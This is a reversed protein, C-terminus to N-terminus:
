HPDGDIIMYKHPNRLDHAYAEMMGVVSPTIQHCHHLVLLEAPESFLRVIRDRLKGLARVTM